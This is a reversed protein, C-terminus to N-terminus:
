PKRLRIRRATLMQDRSKREEEISKMFVNAHLDLEKLERDNQLGASFQESKQALKLQETQYESRAKIVSAQAEFERARNSGMKEDHKEAERQQQQKVEFSLQAARLELEKDGRAAELQKLQLEIMQPDPKQQRQQQAAQYEEETKIIRNSPLHMLSLRAKTLEPVNIFMAMEENQTVEM